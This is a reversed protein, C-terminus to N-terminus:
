SPVKPKVVTDVGLIETGKRSNIARGLLDGVCVVM